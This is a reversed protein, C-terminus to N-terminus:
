HKQKRAQVDRTTLSGIYKVGGLQASGEDAKSSVQQVQKDFIDTQRLKDFCGSEFRDAKSSQFHHSPGPPKPRLTVLSGSVLTGFFDLYNKLYVNSSM